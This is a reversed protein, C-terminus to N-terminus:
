KEFSFHSTGCTSIACAREVQLNLLPHSLSLLQIVDRSVTICEELQQLQNKKLFFDLVSALCYDKFVNAAYVFVCVKLYMRNINVNSVSCVYMKSFRPNRWMISSCPMSM